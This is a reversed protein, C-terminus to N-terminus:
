QVSAEVVYLACNLFGARPVFHVINSNPVICEVIQTMQDAALINRQFDWKVSEGM